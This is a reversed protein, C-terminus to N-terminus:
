FPLNSKDKFKELDIMQFGMKECIPRYIRDINKLDRLYGNNEAYVANIPKQTSDVISTYIATYVLNRAEEKNGKLFEIQAKKTIEKDTLSKKINNIDTTMGWIKFFLIIQLVAAAVSIFIFFDTGTDSTM